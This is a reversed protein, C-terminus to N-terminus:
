IKIHLHRLLTKFFRCLKRIKADRRINTGFGHDYLMCRYNDTAIVSEAEPWRGKIVDKAYYFSSVPNSAILTEAEPWRGDLIFDAYSYALFCYLDPEMTYIEEWCKHKCLEHLYWAYLEKSAFIEVEVYPIRQQGNLALLTKLEDLTM